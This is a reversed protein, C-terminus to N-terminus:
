PLLEQNPPAIRRIKLRTRILGSMEELLDASEMLQVLRRWDHSYVEYTYFPKECTLCTRRRQRSADPLSENMVDKTKVVSTKKEGCHPCMM